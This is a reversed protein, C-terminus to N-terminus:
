KTKNWILKKGFGLRNDTLKLFDPELVWLDLDAFAAYPFRKLYRMRARKLLEGEPRFMRGCLQVGQIKGVIRTELMVSGAVRPNAVAEAAHRTHGESTFVFMEGPELWAYFLNACYPAGNSATALTLVHHAKLFRITEPHPAATDPSASFRPTLM